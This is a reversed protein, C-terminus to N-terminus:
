PGLSANWTKVVSDLTTKIDANSFFISEIGDKFAKQLRSADPLILGLDQAATITRSMAVRSENVAGAGGRTFYPDQAARSTSPFTNTAKAFALQRVDDTMFTALRAAAAKNKSAQPVSLAMLPTHAVRGAGLPYPVVRTQAYVNKNDNQVRVLFQPGTILMGLQGNSYQQTAAEYGKTVASEPFYGARYLNLYKRILAVHQPSNFVARKRDRSLVPLGEEQFLYLFELNRLDPLFGYTGTRDKIQRAVNVLETTTRPPQTVGAKQLIGTNYAVVKPAWYWPAGYVKGGYTFAAKARPLYANLSGRPAHDGLPAIIGQAQLRDLFEANLNVVDPSRGAATAALLRQTVTDFPIDTWNVQIGPNAKEFDAIQGEILDTFFPKLSLTWFELTTSQAGASGLTASGLSLLGLTLLTRKM